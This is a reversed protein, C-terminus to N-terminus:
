AAESKRVGFLALQQVRFMEVYDERQEAAVMQAAYSAAQAISLEPNAAILDVVLACRSDTPPTPRNM